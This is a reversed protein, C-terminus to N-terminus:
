GCLIIDPIFSVKRFLYITSLVLLASILGSSCLSFTSLQRSFRHLSICNFTGYLCFYVCSCFSFSHALEAPKRRLRLGCCGWWTFTLGRPSQHCNQSDDDCRVNRTILSPEAGDASGLIVCGALRQEEVPPHVVPFTVRDFPSM